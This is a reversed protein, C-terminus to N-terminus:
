SINLVNIEQLSEWCSCILPHGLNHHASGAIVGGVISGRTPAKGERLEESMLM